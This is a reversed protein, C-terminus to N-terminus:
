NNNNIGKLINDAYKVVVAVVLGGIAQLMVVSWVISTYGYFFGNNTVSVWDSPHLYTTISAIICSFFGMQINRIWISTPASKM